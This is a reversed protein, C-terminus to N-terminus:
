CRTQKALESTRSRWAVSHPFADDRGAEELTLTATLLRPTSPETELRRRCTDLILDQVVQVTWGLSIRIKGALGSIDLVHRPSRTGRRANAERDARQAVAQFTNWLNSGPLM